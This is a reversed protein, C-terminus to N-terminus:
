SHMSHANACRLISLRIFSAKEGANVRFSVGKLVLPLFQHFLHINGVVNTQFLQSCVADLEDPKDSRNSNPRMM